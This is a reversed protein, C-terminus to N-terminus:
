GLIGLDSWEALRPARRLPDCPLHTEDSALTTRSCGTTFTWRQVSPPSAGRQCPAVVSCIPFIHPLLLATLPSADGASHLQLKVVPQWTQFSVVNLASVLRLVRLDLM